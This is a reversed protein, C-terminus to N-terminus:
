RLGGEHMSATAPRAPAGYTRELWEAWTIQGSRQEPCTTYGARLARLRGELAPVPVILRHRAQAALWARAMDGLRLVQPGGIDPTRGSPGALARRAMQAAAEGTDITQFQASAPVFMFPGAAFRRLMGDILSHFQTARAISWPLGSAEVLREAALKSRYYAMPIREIGVISVYLLHGVGAARAAEILRQTGDVDVDQTQTSPSSAAHIVTDAGALAAALGAGTRLDAQAWEYPASAHPAPQRSMVRVAHGEAVLQQVLERGLGGNGGTVVIRQMM